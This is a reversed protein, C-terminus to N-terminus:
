FLCIVSYSVRQPEKPLKISRYRKQVEAGGGRAVAAPMAGARPGQCRGSEASSAGLPGMLWQTKYEGYDQGEEELFAIADQGELWEVLEDKTLNRSSLRPILKPVRFAGYGLSQRVVREGLYWERCFPGELLIRRSNVM